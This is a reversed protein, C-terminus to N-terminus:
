AGARYPEVDFVCKPPKPTCSAFYVVCAFVFNQAQLAVFYYNEATETWGEILGELNHPVLGVIRLTTSFMFTTAIIVLIGRLWGIQDAVPNLFGVKTQSEGSSVLNRMWWACWFTMAIGFYPFSGRRVGGACDTSFSVLAWAVLSWRSLQFCTVGFWDSLRDAWRQFWALVPADLRAFLNLPFM